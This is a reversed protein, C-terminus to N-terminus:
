KKKRGKKMNKFFAKQRSKIRDFGSLDDWGSSAGMPYRKYRGTRAKIVQEIMALEEERPMPAEPRTPLKARVTTM